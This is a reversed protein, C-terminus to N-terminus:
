PKAGPARITIQSAIVAGDGARDGTISVASGPKLLKRDGVIRKVVPADPPVVVKIEGGKYKLTLM